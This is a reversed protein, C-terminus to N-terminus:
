KKKIIVCDKGEIPTGDNLQGTLTLVVEDGDNVSGLAAVIEQTDFKLTLDDFGDAGDSTCDCDDQGNSVPTAVDEIDSRDPSVGELQVTSIDIDNVDFNATGLVAVPLVGRSTTNLPNPCSQPKIDLEVEIELPNCSAQWTAVQKLTINDPFFCDSGAIAATAGPGITISGTFQDFQDNGDLPGLKVFNNQPHNYIFDCGSGGVFPVEVLNPISMTGSQPEWGAQDWTVTATITVDQVNTPATFIIFSYGPSDSPINQVTGSGCLFSKRLQPSLKTTDTQKEKLGTPSDTCGTILILGLLLPAVILYTKLTKM